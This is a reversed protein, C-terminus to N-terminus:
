NHAHQTRDSTHRDYASPAPAIGAM